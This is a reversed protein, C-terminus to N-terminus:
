RKRGPGAIAVAGSAGITNAAGHRACPKAVSYRNHRWATGASRTSFYLRASKSRCSGVRGRGRLRFASLCSGRNLGDHYQVLRIRNVARLGPLEAELAFNEDLNDEGSGPRHANHADDLSEAMPEIFRRQVGGLLNAELGSQLVSLRHIKGCGHVDHKLDGVLI